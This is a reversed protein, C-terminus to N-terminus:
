GAKVPGIPPPSTAGKGTMPLMAEISERFIDPNVQGLQKAAYQAAVQLKQEPGMPVAGSKVQAASQEEAYQIAGFLVRNISAEQEATVKAGFHRAIQVVAYVGASMLVPILAQIISQIIPNWDM